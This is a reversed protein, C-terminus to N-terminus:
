KIWIWVVPGPYAPGCSVAQRFYQVPFDAVYRYTEEELWVTEEEIVPKELVRVALDLEQPEPPLSWYHKIGGRIGLRHLGASYLHGTDKVRVFLWRNCDPVYIIAEKNAWRPWYSVDWDYLCAGSEDRRCDNVAMTPANLDLPEGNRMVDGQCFGPPGYYSALGVLDPPREMVPGHSALLALTILILRFM